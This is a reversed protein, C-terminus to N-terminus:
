CTIGTTEQVYELGPSHVSQCINSIINKRTLMVGKPLGTTGSSYPLLALKTNNVNSNSPYAMGDDKLLDGYSIAGDEHEGLVIIKIPAPLHYFM